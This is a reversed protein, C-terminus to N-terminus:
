LFALLNSINKPLNDKRIECKNDRIFDAVYIHCQRITYDKAGHAQMETVYDYCNLRNEMVAFLKIKFPFGYTRLKEQDKGVTATVDKYICASHIANNKHQPTLFEVDTSTQFVKVSAYYAVEGEEVVETDPFSEVVARMRQVAKDLKEIKETLKM